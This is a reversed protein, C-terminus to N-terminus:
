LSILKKNVDSSNLINDCLLEAAEKLKQKANQKLFKLEHKSNGFCSYITDIEKGLFEMASDDTRGCIAYVKKSFKKALKAIGLPAKGYASQYDMSGEGTIVADCKKIKDEIKLIKIIGDIGSIIEANLFIKLAAGLGGAAGAGPFDPNIGTQKKIIDGFYLLSDELKNMINESAGKQLSYTFTAGNEGYLPNKVDCLVVFETEGILDKVSRNDFSYIKQIVSAGYGENKRETIEKGWDNYFKVGMAQLMGIGLDNTATGGLALYIRKFNNALADSILQGFGYTSTIWPNLESKNLLLLGSSQAAEIFALDDKIGYYADIERGLPDKVKVFKKEGNIGFLISEVTGEGGDGLPVSVTDFGKKILVKCIIESVELSSFTGKFSDPAVLINM